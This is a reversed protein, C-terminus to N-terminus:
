TPELLEPNRDAAREFADTEGGRLFWRREIVRAIARDIDARLTRYAQTLDCFPVRDTM